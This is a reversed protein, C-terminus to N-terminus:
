GFFKKNMKTVVGATHAESLHSYRKVMNLTKHGLVEAIEALSAGSMALYSACCHRLDHFKFNNICSTKLAQEWAFRLDMPKSSISSPFILDNKSTADNGLGRLLELAIGTLPVLRRDGNKTQQLVIRGRELDVDSWTLNMIEGRRMGTALGLMVVIYLYKNSSSKCADLLRKREDDDLFRVRGREERPKPVRRMPSDELWGWQIARSFAHSLAALYRV